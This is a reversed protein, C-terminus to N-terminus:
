LKSNPMKDVLNSFLVSEDVDIIEQFMSKKTEQVFERNLGDSPVTGDILAIAKQILESPHCTEDVVGCRKAEEAAYRKGFIVSELLNKGGQGSLKLRCLQIIWKPFNLGLHVENLCWYGRETQMVRYDHCLSMVGGGAYAHGNIAAVTPVPCTLIRHQLKYWRSLFKPLYEPADSNIDSMWKLDLGNCYFKSRGTTVIARVNPKSLAEDMAAHMQDIFEDNMRNEGRDITIVAVDSIYDINVRSGYGNQFSALETVKSM